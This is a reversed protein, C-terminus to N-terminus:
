IDKNLDDTFIEDMYKNESSTQSRNEELSNGDADLKDM